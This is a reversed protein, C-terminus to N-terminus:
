GMIDCSAGILMLGSIFKLRPKIKKKKFTCEQIFKDIRKLFDLWWITSLFSCLKSNEELSQDHM